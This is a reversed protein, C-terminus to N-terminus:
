AWKDKRSVFGIVAKSAPTGSVSYNDWYVKLSEDYTRM